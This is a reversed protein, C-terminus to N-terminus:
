FHRESLSLNYITFIDEKYEGIKNTSGLLSDIAEFAGDKGVLM